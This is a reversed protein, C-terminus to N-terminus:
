KNCDLPNHGKIIGHNLMKNILESLSDVRLTYKVNSIPITHITIYDADTFDFHLGSFEFCKQGCTVSQGYLSYPIKRNRLHRKFDRFLFTEKTDVPYDSKFKQFQKKDHNDTAIKALSALQEAALLDKFPTANTRKKQSM